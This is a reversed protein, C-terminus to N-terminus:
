LFQTDFILLVNLSPAPFDEKELCFSYEQSAPKSIIVLSLFKSLRYLEWWFFVKLEKTKGKRQAIRHSQPAQGLFCLLHCFAAREAWNQSEDTSIESNALWSTTLTRRVTLEAEQDKHNASSSAPLISKQASAWASKHWLLHNHRHCLCCTWFFLWVALGSLPPISINLSIEWDKKLFLQGGGPFELNRGEGLSAKLETSYSQIQQCQNVPQRQCIHQEPTRQFAGGSAGLVPNSCAPNSNSAHM